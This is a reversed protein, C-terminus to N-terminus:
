HHTAQSISRAKSNSLLLLFSGFLFRADLCLSLATFRWCCDRHSAVRVLNCSIPNLIDQSLLFHQDGSVFFSMIHITCPPQLRDTLVTMDFFFLFSCDSRLQVKRSGSPNIHGGEHSWQTPSVTYHHPPKVTIEFCDSWNGLIERYLYLKIKYVHSHTILRLSAGIGAEEPM